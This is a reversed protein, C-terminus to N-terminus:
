FSTATARLWDDRYFDPICDSLLQGEILSEYSEDFNRLRGEIRSYLDSPELDAPNDFGMAGCLDLFAHVTARHFNRVRESKEIVNIARARKPNQTAIGTPCHNTNCSQAQICGLAMMMSRAANVVDAGVIIKELMDFGTATQGASILKIHQRIGAGILVQNVYYTAEICPTGLRNSFEVPAAGTGGEAGDITIFDPYIRTELMAKVIALFETKKGLCFKFGVPKGNCLKRLRKLFQLLGQPTDFEPHTPPSLVTEGVKVLRIKAIEETVKAGPLVGGHSPKAGQSLKIEIMKVVELTARERFSDENFSGDPNRCGFYGTGIQWIIDGGHKLHHQSISGEGTNHAFNGLAAGRNLAAIATSSLAGFSLASINLRSANYPQNCDTGGILVRAHEPKVKTAKISHAISRYGEQLIDQETGFPLTDNAAKARRYILNRRERSFPKEEVNNAIFYQQIEPRIYELMYRINALVPYNRRLNSVCFLLEFAGVLTWLLLFLFLVFQFPFSSLASISYSGGVSSHLWLFSLPMFLLAIVWYLRVVPTM